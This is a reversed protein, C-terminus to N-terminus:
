AEVNVEVVTEGVVSKVEKEEHVETVVELGWERRVMDLWEKVTVVKGGVEVNGKGIAKM